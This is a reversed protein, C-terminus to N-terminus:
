RGEEGGRREESRVLADEGALLAVVGLGSPLHCPRPKFVGALAVGLELAAVSRFGHRRGFGAVALGFGDALAHLPAETHFVDGGRAGVQAVGLGAVALALHDGRGVGGDLHEVDTRAVQNRGVGGDGRQEFGALKVDADVDRFGDDAAHADALPGLQAHIGKGAFGEGALHLLDVLLGFEQRAVDLRTGLADVLHEADLHAHGVRAPPQAGAHGSVHGQPLLSIAEPVFPFWAAMRASPRVRRKPSKVATSRTLRRTSGPSIKPKMPGFPLPLVVRMLISVPKSGTLSPAAQTSPSSTRAWPSCTRSRM